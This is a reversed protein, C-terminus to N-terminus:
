HSSLLEAVIEGTLIDSSIIDELKSRFENIPIWKPLVLNMLEYKIFNCQYNGLLSLIQLSKVTDQLMPKNFEFSIYKIPTKLGTLVESEYGEVDIKCFMPVGYQRCLHDLTTVRIKEVSQWHFGSANSFASVFETSLTSCENTEDCIMLDDEREISGLACDLVTVQKKGLYKKTLVKQCKSQPEVTIVKAGIKVFVDTRKGINAGIDFCLDDKSIFNKHFKVMEREKLIKRIFKPVLM